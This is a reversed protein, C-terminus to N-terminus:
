NNHFIENMTNNNLDVNSIVLNLNKFFFSFFKGRKNIKLRIVDSNVNIMRMKQSPNSEMNSLAKVFNSKSNIIDNLEITDILKFIYQSPTPNLNYNIQKFLIDPILCIFPAFIFIILVKWNGFIM